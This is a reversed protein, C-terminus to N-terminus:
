DSENSLLNFFLFVHTFKKLTKKGGLNNMISFISCLARLYVRIHDLSRGGRVQIFDKFSNDTASKEARFFTAFHIDKMLDLVGILNILSSPQPSSPLSLSVSLCLSLSLSPSLSSIIFLM